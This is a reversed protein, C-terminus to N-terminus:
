ESKKASSMYADKITITKLTAKQVKESRESFIYQIRERELGYKVEQASRKAGFHSNKGFARMQVLNIQKFM